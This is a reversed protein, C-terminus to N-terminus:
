EMSLLVSGNAVTEGAVQEAMAVELIRRFETLNLTPFLPPPDSPLGPDREADFSWDDLWATGPSNREMAGVSVRYRMFAIGGRPIALLVANSADLRITPDHSAAPRELKLARGLDLSHWAGEDCARSPDPPVLTWAEAALDYTAPPAAAYVPGDLPGALTRRKEADGEPVPPVPGRDIEFAPVNADDVALVYARRAGTGQRALRHEVPGAATLTPTFLSFFHSEPERAGPPEAETDEGARAEGPDLPEATADESSGAEGANSFVDEALRRELEVVRGPAGIVLAFVPRQRVRGAPITAVGSSNPVDYVPGSYPAAGGLVGIARGDALIRRIPRQLALRAGGILDSNDLWLDTVVVALAGPADDDAVAALVDDLRSERFGCADGCPNVEGRAARVLVDEDIEAIREAFGYYRAEPFQAPPPVLWAILDRYASEGSGRGFNTSSQSVDLYVALRETDHPRDGNGARGEPPPDDPTERAPAPQREELCPPGGPLCCAPVREVAPRCGGIGLMLVLCGAVTARRSRGAM